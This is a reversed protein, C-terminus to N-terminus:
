VGRFILISGSFSRMQFTIKRKWPHIRLNWTLRWPHLPQVSVTNWKSVGEWFGQFHHSQIPFCHIWNKFVTTGSNLENKTSNYWVCGQLKLMSLGFLWIQFSVYNELAWWKKSIHFNGARVFFCSSRQVQRSPQQNGLCLCLNDWWKLKGPHEVLAQPGRNFPKWRTFSVYWDEFFGPSVSQSNVV